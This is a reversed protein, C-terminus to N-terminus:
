EEILACTRIRCTDSKEECFQAEWLEDSAILDARWNKKVFDQWSAAGWVQSVLCEPKASWGACSPILAVWIELGGSRRVGRLGRTSADSKLYRAFRQGDRLHDRLIELGVTVSRVLYWVSVGSINNRYCIFISLFSLMFFRSGFGVLMACRSFPSRFVLSDDLCLRPFRVFSIFPYPPYIFGLM